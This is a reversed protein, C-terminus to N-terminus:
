VFVMARGTLILEVFQLRHTRAPGVAGVALLRGLTDDRDESSYGTALRGAVVTETWQGGHAPASAAATAAAASM